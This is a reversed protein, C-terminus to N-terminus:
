HGLPALNRTLDFFTQYSTAEILRSSSMVWPVDIPAKLVRKLISLRVHWSISTTDAGSLLVGEIEYIILTLGSSVVHNM